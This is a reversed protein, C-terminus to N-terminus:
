MLLLSLHLFPLVISILFVHNIYYVLPINRFNIHYVEMTQLLSKIKNKIKPSNTQCLKLRGRTSELISNFNRQVFERAIQSRSAHIM